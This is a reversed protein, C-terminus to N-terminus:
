LYIAHRYGLDPYFKDLLTNGQPLAKHPCTPHPSFLTSWFLIAQEVTSGWEVACGEGRGVGGAGGM